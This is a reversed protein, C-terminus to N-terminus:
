PQMWWYITRFFGTFMSYVIFVAFIIVAWKLLTKLM